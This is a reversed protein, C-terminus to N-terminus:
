DLLGAIQEMEETRGRTLTIELTYKRLDIGIGVHLRRYKGSLFLRDFSSQELMATIEEPAATGPLQRSGNGEDSSRELDRLAIYGPRIGDLRAARAIFAAASGADHIDQHQYTWTMLRGNERKGILKM